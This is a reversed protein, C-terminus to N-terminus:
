IGDKIAEIGKDTIKYMLSGYGPFWEIFGSNLLSLVSRYDRFLHPPVRRDSYHTRAWLLSAFQSKTLRKKREKM